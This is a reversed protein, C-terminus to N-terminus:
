GRRATGAFTREVTTPAVWVYRDAGGGILALMEDEMRQLLQASEGTLRLASAALAAESLELRQLMVLEGEQVAPVGHEDLQRLVTLQTQWPGVAPATSPGVRGLDHIILMPQQANGWTQVPGEGPIVM